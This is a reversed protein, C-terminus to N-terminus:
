GWPSEVGNVTQVLYICRMSQFREAMNSGLVNGVRHQQVFSVKTPWEGRVPVRYRLLHAIDHFCSDLLMKSTSADDEALRLTRFADRAVVLCRVEKDGILEVRRYEDLGLYGAIVASRPVFYRANLAKGSHAILAAPGNLRIKLHDCAYVAPAEANTSLIHTTQNGHRFALHESKSRQILHNGVCPKM